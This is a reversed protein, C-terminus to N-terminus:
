KTTSPEIPKLDDPKPAKISTGIARSMQARATELSAEAQVQSAQATVLTAQATTVEVFTTVGAKFRGESLRLGEQANLVASAAVAVRQAASQLSVFAGSVDSVVSQTQSVLNAKAELASAKAAAVDGATHGSDFFTWNLSIALSATDGSIVSAVGATGITGDLSISPLLEKRAVSVGYGAARLTEEAQLIEPRNRLGSDVLANLDTSDNAPESSKSLVLPTRPDVGILAALSVRSLLYTERAQVLSTTANAVNAYATVVDSPVGLGATLEAVTLNLQDQTSKVEAEYVGVLELNEVVTYYQQKVQFVLNAQVGSLNYVAAKETARAQRVQDMTKEFDFILQHVSASASFGSQTTSSSGSGAQNFQFLWEYQGTATATPLLASIAIQVQARAAAAQALAVTVNPQLRLGIMAADDASIPKTGIEGPVPPGPLLLDPTPPIPTTNPKQPPTQAVATGIVVAYLLIAVPLKM